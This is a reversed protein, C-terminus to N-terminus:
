ANVVRRPQPTDAGPLKRARKPSQNMRDRAAALADELKEAEVEVAGWKFAVSSMGLHRLQFDWLKESIGAVRRQNFGTADFKYVFVWENEGIHAGFDQDKVFSNMLRDMAETLDPVEVAPKKGAEAVPASEAKSLAITFLIGTMPQPLSLLQTWASNDHMGAPLELAAPAPEAARIPTIEIVAAPEAVEV